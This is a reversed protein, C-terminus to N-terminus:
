KNLRRRGIGAVGLLGLGFLIFGAPEPTVVPPPEFGTGFIFGHYAATNDIQFSILLKTIQTIDTAMLSQIDATIDNALFSLYVGGSSYGSLADDFSGSLYVTDGGKISFSGDYSYLGNNATVGQSAQLHFLTDPGFTHFQGGINIGPVLSTITIEQGLTWNEDLTNSSQFGDLDIYDASANGGVALLIVLVLLLGLGYNKVFKM